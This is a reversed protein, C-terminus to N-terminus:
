NPIVYASVMVSDTAYAFALGKDGSSFVLDLEQDQPSQRVLQQANLRRKTSIKRAIGCCTNHSHTLADSLVSKAALATIHMLFVQM